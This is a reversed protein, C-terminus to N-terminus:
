APDDAPADVPEAFRAFAKLNATSEGRKLRWAWERRISSAFGIELLRDFTGDAYELVSGLLRDVEDPTVSHLPLRGVLYVDGVSDMSFALAYMRANRQLLFRQFAEVNEDAKRCVFAEVHLAHPGLVFWCYTALKHQGPIKVFFAGPREESHELGAETFAAALVKGRDDSM